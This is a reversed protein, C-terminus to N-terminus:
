LSRLTRLIVGAFMVILIVAGLVLGDGIRDTLEKVDGKFNYEVYAVPAGDIEGDAVARLQPGDNLWRYDGSQIGTDETLIQGDYGAAFSANSITAQTDTFFIDVTAGSGEDYMIRATRTANPLPGVPDNILAQRQSANLSSNFVRTEDMRGHLNNEHSANLSGQFNGTDQTVNVSEGLTTNRRITVNDGSRNVFVHQLRTANTGDASVNVRFTDSTALIYATYNARQGSRNHYRVILDPDGAGLVTMNDAALASDNIAVGSTVTWNNGSALDIDADSSLHSDPAGTFRVSFNRSDRVVEDTGVGSDLSVFNTGDLLVAEDRAGADEADSAVDALPSLIAFGLLLLASIAIATIVVRAAGNAM